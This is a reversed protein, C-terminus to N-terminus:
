LGDTTGRLIRIHLKEEKIRKVAEHMLATSMFYAGLMNPGLDDGCMLYVLVAMDFDDKDKCMIRFDAKSEMGATKMYSIMDVLYLQNVKDLPYKFGSSPPLLDVIINDSNHLLKGYFMPDEHLMTLDIIITIIYGRRRFLALSDLFDPSDIFTKDGELAKVTIRDCPHDIIKHLTDQLPINESDNDITILTELIGPM